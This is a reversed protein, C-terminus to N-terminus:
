KGNSPVGIRPSGGDALNGVVEKKAMVRNDAQNVSRDNGPEYLARSILLVVAKNSELEARVACLSKLVKRCQVNFFEFSEASWKRVRPFPQRGYLSGM